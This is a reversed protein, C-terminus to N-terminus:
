SARNASNKSLKAQGKKREGKSKIPLKEWSEWLTLEQLFKTKSIPTLCNRTRYKTSPVYTEFRLSKGDWRTKSIIFEENDYKDFARIKLTNRYETIELVVSSDTQWSGVLWDKKTTIKM